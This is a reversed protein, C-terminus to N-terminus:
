SELENKSNINTFMKQHFQHADVVKLNLKKYVSKLTLENADLCTKFTALCNKNFIGILPHIQENKQLITIDCGQAQAILFQLLSPHIFPTDCSLVVNWETMSHKLGTYIGALPGKNKIEDPYVKYGFQQYNAQNSIIMIEESKTKAVEIVHQIMPKGNLNMLGKDQGMRSSKGGALIITNVKM